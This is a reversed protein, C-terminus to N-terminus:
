RGGGWVLNRGGGISCLIVFDELSEKVAAAHLLLHSQCSNVMFFNLHLILEFGFLSSTNVVAICQSSNTTVKLM